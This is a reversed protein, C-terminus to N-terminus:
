LRTVSRANVPRVYRETRTPHTTATWLEMASMTSRTATATGRWRRASSIRRTRVSARLLQRGCWLLSEADLMARSFLSLRFITKCKIIITHQKDVAWCNAWSNAIRFRLNKGRSARLALATNSDYTTRRETRGDTQRDTRGHRWSDYFKVHLWPRVIGLLM